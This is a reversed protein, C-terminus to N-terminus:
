RKSVPGAEQNKMTVPEGTWTPCFLYVNEPDASIIDDDDQANNLLTASRVYIDHLIGRNDRFKKKFIGQTHLISESARSLCGSGSESMKTSYTSVCQAIRWVKLHLWSSGSVATFEWTPMCKLCGWTPSENRFAFQFYLFSNNGSIPLINEVFARGPDSLM